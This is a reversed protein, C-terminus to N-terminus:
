DCHGDPTCSNGEIIELKVEPNEARWEGFSKQLTQKFVEVDQAGSVAYKRNFVFFPVGRVGIQGAEDIDRKVEDAYSGNELATKLADTDLSLEKGLEILTEFDDMNKGDTFYSRFLLEEAESQKGYEKAFHAFRHANFSNAVVMKDNNYVLGENKAMAAVRQNMETAEQVSMGKHQALFQHISIDPNTKLDPSLQYSKWIIELHAKDAFSTLAAEFKRKGIYCFPCMIDSWIEIKMTNKM